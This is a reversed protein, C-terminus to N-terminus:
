EGKVADIERLKKGVSTLMQKKGDLMTHLRHQVALLFEKKTKYLCGELKQHNYARTIYSLDSPSVLCWDENKTLLVYYSGNYHQMVKFVTHTYTDVYSVLQPIFYLKSSEGNDLDVARYLVDPYKQECM